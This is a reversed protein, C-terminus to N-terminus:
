KVADTRHPQDDSSIHGEYYRAGKVCQECVGLVSSGCELMVLILFERLPSYVSPNIHIMRCFWYKVGNKAENLEMKVKREGLRYHEADTRSVSPM